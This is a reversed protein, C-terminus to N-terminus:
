VRIGQQFVYAGVAVAAALNLSDVDGTQPIRVTDGENAFSLPLGTGENGFILAYPSRVRGAIDPLAYKSELMFPYRAHGPYAARYEEYSGFVGIRMAFLAGMSARVVHPDFVDAAPEIVAMNYLGLGVLTRIITGLNGMDSPNVLVVHPKDVSIESGFKDFVIAAYCNDKRSITRLARDATEIRIGADECMRILQMVGGSREAQSHLLLRRASQPRRKVCEISPYVGPAYSYALSRSYSELPPM